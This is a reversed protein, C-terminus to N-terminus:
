LNKDKAIQMSLEELKESIRELKKIILFLEKEHNTLTLVLLDIYSLPNVNRLKKKSQSTRV